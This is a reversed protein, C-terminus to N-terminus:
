SSFACLSNINLVAFLPFSAVHQSCFFPDVWPNQGHPGGEWLLHGGVELLKLSNGPPKRLKNRRVWEYLDYYVIHDCRGNNKQDNDKVVKSGVLRGMIWEVSMFLAM